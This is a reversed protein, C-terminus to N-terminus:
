EQYQKYSRQLKRCPKQLVHSGEVRLLVALHKKSSLCWRRWLSISSCFSVLTEVSPSTASAFHRRQEFCLATVKCIKPARQLLCCIKAPLCQLFKETQSLYSVLSYDMRGKLCFPIPWRLSTTFTTQAARVSQGLLPLPCTVGAVQLVASSTVEAQYTPHLQEYLEVRISITRLSWTQEYGLAKNKGWSWLTQLNCLCSRQM